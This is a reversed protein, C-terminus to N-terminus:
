FWELQEHACSSFVVEDGRYIALDEPFSPSLFEYSFKNRKLIKISEDELRYFRITAAVADLETGPWKKVRKEAVLFPRLSKEFEKANKNYDLHDRWILSFKDAKDSVSDIVEHLLLSM